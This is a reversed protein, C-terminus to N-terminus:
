PFIVQGFGMVSSPFFLSLLGSGWKQLRAFAKVEVTDGRGYPSVELAARGVSACVSAHLARIVKCTHEQVGM